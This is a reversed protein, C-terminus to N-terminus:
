QGPSSANRKVSISNGSLVLTQLHSLNGISTPLPGSISNNSLDLTQLHSLNGISTPLPGSISNWSLDLTELHSLSGISMPIQGSISNFSLYLTQLHSLNGISTPFPGSISNNYLDFTELHSLSGISVSITGSIQKDSLLLKIVNGTRNNCVIGDWKCCDKGVWSDLVSLPDGLGHKFELLANREEEICTANFSGDVLTSSNALITTAELFVCYYQTLFLLFNVLFAIPFSTASIHCPM